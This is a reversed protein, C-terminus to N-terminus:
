PHTVELPILAPMWVVQWGAAALEEASLGAHLAPDPLGTPPLAPNGSGRVAAAEGEANTRSM